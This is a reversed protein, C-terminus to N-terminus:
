PAIVRNGRRRGMTGVRTNYIVQTIDAGTFTCPNSILNSLLRSLVILKWANGASDVLGTTTWDTMMTRVGNWATKGTTNLYGGDVHDEVVGTFHQTGFFSRGRYGSKKQFYVANDTQYADTAVAGTGTTLDIATAATPDDMGRVEYQDVHYENSAVPLFGAVFAARFVDAIDVPDFIPSTSLRRFNFVTVAPITGGAPPSMHARVIAEIFQPAAPTGVLNTFM